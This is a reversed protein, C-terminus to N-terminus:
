GRKSLFDLGDRSCCSPSQKQEQMAPSLFQDCPTSRFKILHMRERMLSLVDEIKSFGNEPNRKAQANRAMELTAM